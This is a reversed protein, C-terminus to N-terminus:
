LLERIVECSVYTLLKYESSHYGIELKLFDIGYERIDGVM